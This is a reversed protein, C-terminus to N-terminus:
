SLVSAHKHGDKMAVLKTEACFKLGHVKHVSRAPQRRPSPRRPQEWPIDNTRPFSTQRFLRARQRVVSIHCPTRHSPVSGCRYTRNGAARVKGDQQDRQDSQIIDKHLPSSLMRAAHYTWKTAGCLAHIHRMAGLRDECYPEFLGITKSARHSCLLWSVRFLWWAHCFEGISGIARRDVDDDTAREDVSVRMPTTPHAFFAEM